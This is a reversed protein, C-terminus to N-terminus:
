LFGIVLIERNDPLRLVQDETGNRLTTAQQNTLITDDVLRVQLVEAKPLPLATQTQYDRVEKVAIGGVERPPNKRLESM